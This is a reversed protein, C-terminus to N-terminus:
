IIKNVLNKVGRGKEKTTKHIFLGTAPWFDYDKLALHAGNNKSEFEIGKEKLYNTSWITNSKKRDKKFEKWDEDYGFSGLGEQREVEYDAYEGM